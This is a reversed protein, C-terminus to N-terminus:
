AASGATKLSSEPTPYDAEATFSGPRVRFGFSPATPGDAFAPALAPAAGLSVRTSYSAAGGAARMMRRVVAVAVVLALLLALGGLGAILPLSLGTAAPVPRAAPPAPAPLPVPPPAVVPPAPVAAQTPTPQSAPKAAATKEPAAAQRRPTQRVPTEFEEETDDAVAGPVGRPAYPVPALGPSVSDRQQAPIGPSTSSQQEDPTIRPRPLPREGAGVPPFRRLPDLTGAPPTVPQRTAPQRAAPAPTPTPSQDRTQAQATGAALLAGGILGLVRAAMRFSM